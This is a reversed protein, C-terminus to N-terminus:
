LVQSKLFMMGQKAIMHNRPIQVRTKINRSKSMSGDGQGLNNTELMTSIVDYWLIIVATTLHM